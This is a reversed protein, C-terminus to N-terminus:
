SIACVAHPKGVTVKICKSEEMKTQSIPKQSSVLRLDQDADYKNSSGVTEVHAEFVSSPVTTPQINVTSKERKLVLMTVASPHAVAATAIERFWRTRAQLAAM